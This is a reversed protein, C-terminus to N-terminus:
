AYERVIVVGAAGNGGAQQAANAQGVAGSGGGGYGTGPAGPGTVSNLSSGGSGYPTSGGAGSVMNGTTFAVGAAGGGGASNIVTGGAAGGGGGGVQCSPDGSPVAYAGGGGGAGSLGGFSSPGGNGGNTAGVGGNGGSGVAITAGAFGSTLYSTAFGGGGGGGAAAFRGGSMTASGGGGGGGGVATVEVARTGDTPTYSTSSNFVRINLLSGALAFRRWGAGSADPNTMNNDATSLWFTGIDNASGIVAGRPYGGIGAQFTADYTIPGGAATWRQWASLFNFLGNFDRGDPPSGGAGEDTFTQPPFGQSFSAAAPDSSTQPIPRVYAGTADQAFVRQSKNPINSSQM